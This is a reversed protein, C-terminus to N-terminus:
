QKAEELVAGLLCTGHTEIGACCRWSLLLTQLMCSGLTAQIALPLAPLFYPNPLLTLYRRGTSATPQEADEAQRVIGQSPWV